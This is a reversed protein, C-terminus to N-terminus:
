VPSTDGSGPWKMMDEFVRRAPADLLAEAARSLARDDALQEFLTTAVLNATEQNGEAFLDNVFAFSRQVVPDESGLERLREILFGAFDGFVVYPLDLFLEDATYEPVRRRLSVLLDGANM